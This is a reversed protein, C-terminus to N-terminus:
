RPDGGPTGHPDGGPTKQPGNVTMDSQGKWKDREDALAVFHLTQECLDLISEQSEVSRQLQLDMRDGRDIERQHIPGPVIWSKGIAYILAVAVTLNTLSDLAPSIAGLTPIASDAAQAMSAFAAYILAHTPTFM